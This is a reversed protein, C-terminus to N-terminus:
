PRDNRAAKMDFGAALDMVHTGHALRWGVSNHGERLFDILGARQYVEDEDVMGGHTARALYSDIETKDLEYGDTLTSGPKKTALGDQLWWYEVRSAALAKRVRAHAFAVGDDIIGMVVASM